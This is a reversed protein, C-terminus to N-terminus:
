AGLYTNLLDSSEKLEDSSGNWVFEGDDMLYIWDAVSQLRTPNEEVILLTPSSTRLGAIVEYIHDIIKPALGLSPEDLMMIEGSTMLGRGIGLMRREGGSLTRAQQRRRESLRPFFEYVTELRNHLEDPSEALYGGLILNEEITMDPFVLDGQPIHVLGQAVRRYAPMDQIATGNLFIQGAWAPVLGSIARLMTTKGHGNPGTIGVVSGEPVSLSIDHLVKRRDYGTTLNDIQLMSKSM